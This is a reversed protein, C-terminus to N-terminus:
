EINVKKLKYIQNFLINQKIEYMEIVGQFTRDNFNIKEGDGNNVQHEVKFEHEFCKILSQLISVLQSSISEKEKIIFLIQEQYCKELDDLDRQHVKSLRRLENKYANHIVLTEDDNVYSVDNLTDSYTRDTIFFYM